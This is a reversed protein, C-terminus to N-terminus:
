PRAEAALRQGLPSTAARKLERWAGSEVVSGNDLLLVQADDGALADIDRADHTAIVCPVPTDDRAASLLETLWGRAFKDLGASPEDLLLLRDAMATARLAQVRRDEGGSLREGPATLLDGLEAVWRNWRDFMVRPGAPRSRALALARAVTVGPWLARDQFMMGIGRKHAPTQIEAGHTWATAGLAIDGHDPLDLGAIVRLTTSKGCGNLGALVLTQTPGVRLDPLTLAFGGRQVRLGRVILAIDTSDAGGDM